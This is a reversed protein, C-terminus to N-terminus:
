SPDEIFRAKLEPGPVMCADRRGFWRYRNRAILDYAWDRLPRPIVRLLALLKWRGRLYAAIRVVADSKVYARHDAILVFTRADQPDVGLERMLQAGAQSQMPTFRLTPQDEHKLIFSVSRACLNCLGDFVVLNDPM